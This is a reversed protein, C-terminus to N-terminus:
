PDMVNAAFRMLDHLSPAAISHFGVPTDPYWHLYWISDDKIATAKEEESEWEVTELNDHVWNEASTYTARHPNHELTLGHDHKPLISEFDECDTCSM